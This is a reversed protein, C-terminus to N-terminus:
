SPPVPSMRARSTLRKNKNEKTEQDVQVCVTAKGAIDVKEKITESYEYTQRSVASSKDKEKCAEEM